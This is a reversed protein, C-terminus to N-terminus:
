VLDHSSVFDNRKSIAASVKFAYGIRIVLITGALYNKPGAWYNTMKYKIIQHFDM